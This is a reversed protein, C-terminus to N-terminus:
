TMSLFKTGLRVHAGDTDRGPLVFSGSPLGPTTITWTSAQACRCRFTNSMTSWTNTIVTFGPKPPCAYMGMMVSLILFIRDLLDTLPDHVPVQVDVDLDVAADFCGLLGDPGARVDPGVAENGSGSEKGVIVHRLSDLPEGGRRQLTLTNGSGYRRSSIGITFHSTIKEELAWGYM